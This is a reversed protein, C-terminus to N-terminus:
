VATRFVSSVLTKGGVEMVQEQALRLGCQGALTQVQRAERLRMRGELRRLSPFSTASVAPLDTTPNQTIVSCAGGPALWRHIRRFLLLPDVYELVLAAHVLDFGARPLDVRLVDGTVLQLRPGLAALRGRAIELYEPNLDVGVVVDTSSADVLQLDSGTTCGLVALRRPKRDSYVRFFMARLAASQGVASMHAEYEDAPIALWPEDDPQTM